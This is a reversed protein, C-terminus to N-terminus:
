SWSDWRQAQKKVSHMPSGGGYWDGRWLEFHLHCGTANGSEGVDGIEEGTKVREGQSVSAPGRMHMYVYDRRTGRGDVVIYYGAGSGQYAKYQVKGARAAVLKTGCAAFIDVGKHGRGAGYGDGYTHSGRVPFKHTYSHFSPDGKASSRDLNSHGQQAVRFFFTGSSKSSGSWKIRREDGPAVGDRFWRKRPKDDGKKYLKIVLDRRGGRGAIEYRFKVPTGSRYFIDGPDTDGLTLRLSGSEAATQDTEGATETTGDGTTTGETPTTTETAPPETTTETTTEGPTTEPLTQATAVGVGTSVALVLAGAFVRAIAFPKTTQM